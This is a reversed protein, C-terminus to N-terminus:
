KLIMQKSWDPKPVFTTKEKALLSPLLYETVGKFYIRLYENWDIDSPDCPFKAKDADSLSAYLARAKDNKFVCQKQQFWEMSWRTMLVRQLKKVNRPEKGQLRLLLDAVHAPIKMGFFTLLDVLKKSKTFVAYPRKEYFGFKLSEEIFVQYFKYWTTPNSGSSTGNYVPASSNESNQKAAAVLCLNVLYDVPILDGIINKNKLMIYHNSGRVVDFLVGTTGLWNDLWGKVPEKYTSVVGSPRIITTPIEPNEGVYNETLCKTFTYTTPHRGIFKATEESDNPFKKLFDYVEEVRAPAPYVKEYLDHDMAQAFATSVYLFSQLNRMGKCLDLMRRTGEFNINMVVHLPERYKVTAASHYVVSVEDKLTQEDELKIGLKPECIDGSIPVLKNFVQPKTKKLKDFIPNKIMHNLRSEINEGKKQRILIFVKNIDKCSRLLKEIYVKGIFGTGGTVLVSKGAYFDSVSQSSEILTRIGCPAFTQTILLLM